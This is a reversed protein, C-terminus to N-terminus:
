AGQLSKLFLSLLESQSSIALKAYLNKRHTKVTGLSIELIVGISESSHGRLILRTVERERDTLVSKGFDDFADDVQRDPPPTRSRSVGFEAWYRRFLAGVLPVVESLRSMEAESFDPGDRTREGRRPMARYAKYYESELFADPVLDRMRYVGQELGNQYAQYLPNLVYTNEVYAAIGKRADVTAFNDFIPLPRSRGRYVFVAAMEFAVLHGLAHVLRAPLNENDLADVIEGIERYWGATETETDSIPAKDLKRLDRRRGRM